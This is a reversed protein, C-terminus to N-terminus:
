KHVISYRLLLKVARGGVRITRYGFIDRVLQHGMVYLYLAETNM